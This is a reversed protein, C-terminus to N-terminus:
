WSSSAGGGGSSGGGWDSGSSSSGSSSGGSSGSSSREIRAITYKKVERHGCYKCLKTEEGLGESSTTAARITRDNAVYYTQYNCQPCGSYKSEKNAYILTEHAQCNRCLWVDYDVSKLEEERVQGKDLFANDASESLKIMSTGCQSCQRPHNRFFEIKKKYSGYMFAFPIPFLFRLASFLGRKSQYYNYVAHYDKQLILGAAQRNMLGKRVLGVSGSYAYLGVMFFIAHDTMSLAFMVLMPIIVFWVLWQWSTFQANPVKATSFEAFSKNRRKVIFTIIFVVFWGIMVWMTIDMLPVYESAQATADAYSEPNNLAYAAAKVGRLMGEDYNSEKFYPVMEERQIKKCTADPLLGEIGNGTHFRVTHNDKVLLILLGNDNASQGIGWKEFLAQSFDFIDTDGISNLLVVAVQATSQAELSVVVSDIMEATADSIIHDPNTVHSGDSLRPNPVTEITYSQAGVIISQLLIISIILYKV